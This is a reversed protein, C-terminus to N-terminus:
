MVKNRLAIMAAGIFLLGAAISTWFDTGILGTDPLQKKQEKTQSPNTQQETSANSVQDQQQVQEQKQEQKQEQQVQLDTKPQESVPATVPNDQKSDTTQTNTWHFISGKGDVFYKYQVLAYFAQDFAMSNNFDDGAIWKFGGNDLQFSLLNPVTSSNKTFDKGTPDIGMMSLATVVVAVSNSNATGYSEFGGNLLQIGKLYAVTQKTATVVDPNDQHAALAMLVMANTDPDPDEAWKGPSTQEKLIAAVLKERNWTSDSPISYDKSDLALLAYTYAYINNVSPDNSLKTILNQGAINTADGGVANVALITRALLTGQLRGSTQVRDVLQQLYSSKVDNGVSDTARTLAIAQWDSQIGNSVTFSIAKKLADDVTSIASQSPSQPSQGPAPTSSPTSPPVPTCAGYGKISDTVTQKLLDEGWDLSYRFAIVDNNKVIYDSAGVDASKGNIEYLWGSKPGDDLEKLGDIGTVYPKGYFSSSTVKDGLEKKLMDYATENADLNVVKPCLIVQKQSDGVVILTAQNSAAYALTGGNAFSLVVLLAALVFLSFKKKIM